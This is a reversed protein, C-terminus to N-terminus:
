DSGFQAALYTAITRAEEPTAAAGRAVMNGVILPWDQKRRKVITVRELDHCGACRAEILEKGDGGPLAIAKAPTAPPAGPGFNGALYQIVTDAERPTLQAGRLVMNAVHDRWGGPGDRGATLPTLSHCQTCAVAVLDRGEGPPLAGPSQARVPAALVLALAALAGPVTLRSRM